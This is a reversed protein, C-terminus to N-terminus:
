KYIGKKWQGLVCYFLSEIHTFTDIDKLAQIRKM